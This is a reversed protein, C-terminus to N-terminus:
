GPDPRPRGFLYGQGLDIGLRALREAQIKTEVMEAVSKVGLEKCLAAMGRLIAQDRQSTSQVYTGDIKVYDFQFARLYHFAAAGSGFDDLCVPIKKKRLTAILAAVPEPQSIAASETLEFMVRGRSDPFRALLSLLARSFAESEMSRASLNIALPVTARDQRDLMSLVRRCVMLDFEAILGVQEAFCVLEFPSHGNKLRSLVEHHHVVRTKFAVIPQFTLEIDDNNVTDRVQVVRQVTEEVMRDFGDQLSAITFDKGKTEVFRNIAYLLAQAADGPKLGDHGLPLAAIKPILGIGKPDAIKSHTKVSEELVAVDM